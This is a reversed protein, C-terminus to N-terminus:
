TQTMTRVAEVLDDLRAMAQALTEPRLFVCSEVTEAFGAPLEHAFQVLRAVSGKENLCYMKNLAYLVQVLCYVTRNMSCSVYLADGKALGKRGCQQSFEAEWLFKEMMARRFGEPYTQVSAKLGALVGRRDSVIVCSAAEGLYIANVFGFPHGCQDDMTIRGVLCDAITQKVRATDRLLLDVATGGMSLWAGGNIWPGWAGPPALCDARHQDDLRTAAQQAGAVDFNAGYYIGVDVDSSAGATGTARSGGLVVADVGAVGDFAEAIRSLVESIEM